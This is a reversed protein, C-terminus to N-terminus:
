EELTVELHHDSFGRMERCSLVRMDRGRWSVRSEPAIAEGTTFMLTERANEVIAGSPNKYVQRSRQGPEMRCRREEEPGYRPGTRDQGLYPQIRCLDMLFLGIM